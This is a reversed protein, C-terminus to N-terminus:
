FKVATGTAVIMMMSGNQGLVEFDLDVGVIADAGLDSARKKIEELAKSRAEILEAEYSCSRGGFINTLGAAFDKILNIGVIVEGNVIGLYERIPRGEITSTTTIIM